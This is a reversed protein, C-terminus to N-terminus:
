FFAKFEGLNKSLVTHIARALVGAGLGILLVRKTKPQLILSGMMLKVYSPIVRDLNDLNIFGHAFNEEIVKNTTLLRIYNGNFTTFDKVNFNEDRYIIKNLCTIEPMFSFLFLSYYALIMMMMM